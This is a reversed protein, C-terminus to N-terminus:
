IKEYNNFFNKKQRKKNCHIKRLTLFKNWKMEMMVLYVMGGSLQIVM